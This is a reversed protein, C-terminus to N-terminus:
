NFLSLLDREQSPDSPAGDANDGDLARLPQDRAGYALVATVAIGLMAGAAAM